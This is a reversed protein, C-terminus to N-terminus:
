RPISYSALRQDLQERSLWRGGVMVGGIRGTNGIDELPNAELLVLDARAGPAVTGDIAPRDLVAAVNRTGTVLAEYPTLGALVLFRL